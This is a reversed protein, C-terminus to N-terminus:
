GVVVRRVSLGASTLSIILGTVALRAILEDSDLGMVPVLLAWLAFFPLSWHRLTLMAPRLRSQSQRLREDIEAAAIIAAPILLIAVVAWTISTGGTVSM